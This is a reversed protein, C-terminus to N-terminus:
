DEIHLAPQITLEAPCEVWPSEPGPGFAQGIPKTGSRLSVALPMDTRDIGHVALVVYEPESVSQYVLGPKVNRWKVKTAISNFNVHM